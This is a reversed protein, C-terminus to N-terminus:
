SPRVVFYVRRNNKGKNETGTIEISGIESLNAIHTGGCPSAEYDGIAIIRVQQITEPIGMMLKVLTPNQNIEARTMWRISVPLKQNILENTKDQFQKLMEPTYNELSFDIRAKDTNLQNGSILAGTEKNVVASLLHAATHYRMLKSRRDWNITGHVVDGIQMGEKDVEHYISDSIKKVFLVKFLRGEQTLMDGTDSPQGGGEAYFATKDLVVLRGEVKTVTAKFERMYCQSLYLQETM